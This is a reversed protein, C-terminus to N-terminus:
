ENVQIGNYIIKGNKITMCNLNKGVHYFIENYDSTNFISFDAKKGKEISGISNSMELAKAANITFSSIIEEFSMKMNIAALSMILNINDIHSSGPNFDTSLAVIANNSILERAPAYGYDLFFSVGPLLVCVSDSNSVKPIDKYDIKELHEVLHNHRVLFEKLKNLLFLM